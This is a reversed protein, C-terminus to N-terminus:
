KIGYCHFAEHALEQLSICAFPGPVPAACRSLDLLGCV